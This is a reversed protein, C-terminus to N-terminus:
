SIMKVSVIPKVSVTFKPLQAALKGITVSLRLHASELLAACLAGEDIGQSHSAMLPVLEHAVLSLLLEHFYKHYVYVQEGDKGVSPLGVDSDEIVFVGQASHHGIYVAPKEGRRKLYDKLEILGSEIFYRADHGS